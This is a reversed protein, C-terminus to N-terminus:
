AADAQARALRGEGIFGDVPGWKAVHRVRAALKMGAEVAAARFRAQGETELWGGAAGELMEAVAAAVQGPASDRFGINRLNRYFGEGLFEAPALARGTDLDIPQGLLYLGDARVPYCRFADAANIVLCPTDLLCALQQADANDCVLFECHRLLMLDVLPSTGLRVVGRGRSALLELAPGLTARKASTDVVVFPRATDLGAAEVAAAARARLEAPLQVRVRHRLLHRPFRIEEGPQAARESRAHARHASGRLRGRLDIPLREDGAHRRLERHWERWFAASASARRAAADTAAAALTWRARAVAGTIGTPAVRRIGDAELALLADPVDAAPPLVCAAAREVHARALGAALGTAFRGPSSGDPRFVVIREGGLTILPATLRDRLAADM